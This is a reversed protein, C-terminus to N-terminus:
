PTIIAAVANVQNLIVQLPLEVKVNKPVYVFAGTDWLAAHLATFKNFDPKVV